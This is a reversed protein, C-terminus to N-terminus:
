PLVAFALADSLSTAQPAPPDRFWGQAYVTTGAPPAKASHAAAWALFDLTLAGDCAGATGGSPQARTRVVPTAVCLWSTGTSWPSAAPATGWFLIGPVAGEVSDVLVDFGSGASLSATGAASIQARCGHATTGATCYAVAQPVGRDRRYIDSWTNADAPDLQARSDFAVYRGEPTIAPGMIGSDAAGQLGDADLSVREITGLLRDRVFVDWFGNTDDPVLNTARSQFAVFRGDPTLDPQSSDGDAQAGDFALSLRETEGTQRDHLFLDGKGNTDGPVLNAASSRFTVYRGDPTIRGGDSAANGQVGASDVSVRETTGTLRDRVFVDSSGNTDGAVLNTSTGYFAVYRGDASIASCYVEGDGQVGASDISVLETTDAARDRLFVDQVGNDDVAVLNDAHSTFAVYRGDASIAPNYSSDNGQQGLWGVSVRETTGNVRDRVFVDHGNPYPGNTDGAVLNTAYSSFAVYHVDPTLTASYSFSNGKVEDSDVSIREIAGTQLDRLFVGSETFGKYWLFGVYRGDPSIAPDFADDNPLKGSPDISVLRTTQAAASGALLLSCTAVALSRSSFRPDTTAGM